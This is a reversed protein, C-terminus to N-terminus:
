ANKLDGAELFKWGRDQAQAARGGALAAPVAPAVFDPFKPASIAPPAVTKPACASAVAVLAVIGLPALRRM